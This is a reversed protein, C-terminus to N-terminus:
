NDGFGKIGAGEYRTDARPGAAWQGKSARYDAANARRQPPTMPADYIDATCGCLEGPYGGEVMHDGFPTVPWGATCGQCQNM